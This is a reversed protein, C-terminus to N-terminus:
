DAPFRRMAGGARVSIHNSPETHCHSFLYAVRPLRLAHRLPLDRSVTYRAVHQGFYFVARGRGRYLREVVYRLTETQRRAVEEAAASFRAAALLAANLTRALRVPAAVEDTGKLQKFLRLAGLGLARVLYRREARQRKDAESAAFVAAAVHPAGAGVGALRQLVVLAAKVIHAVNRHLAILYYHEAGDARLVRRYHRVPALRRAEQSRVSIISCNQSASLNSCM